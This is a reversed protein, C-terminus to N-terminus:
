ATRDATALRPTGVPWLRGEADRHVAQAHVTAMALLMVACTRHLLSSWVPVMLLLTTSASASRPGIALLAIARRRAAGAHRSFAHWALVALVLYAMMRHQFQVTM